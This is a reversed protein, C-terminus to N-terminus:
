PPLLRWALCGVAQLAKPVQQLGLGTTHLRGQM